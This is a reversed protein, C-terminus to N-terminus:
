RNFALAMGRSSDDLTQEHWVRNGNVYTQVVRHRFRYDRFPTWGCKSLVQDRVGSDGDACTEVLTLDAWYGERIYGREQVAFIDAVRHAAAQAVQEYSLVGDAVLELFAPLAYEVLPLGAAAASYPMDKEAPLHPAHDTALVDIVGDAVAQRIADRDARTKVAPNCKLRMGLRAYDSDDFLLHHACAECTIQKDAAAGGSFLSLEKATTIHLIHLRAGHAKALQVALSSSEYCAEDDRIVAHMAPPIDDGYQQRLPETRAKIRATNECHTAILTPASTFINSLVQPDDVLLNGTSAGMFVKIGAIRRADAAAIDAYNDTSAGLYFAYNTLSQAAAIRRKEELHEMTLTPPQVNPMDMYSTVGGAAAARSETAIDAKHTLGPTRFHVQDDILGPFLLRGGADTVTEGNRALLSGAAAIEAIRGAEIRIDAERIHGDNVLRCNSLLHQTANM